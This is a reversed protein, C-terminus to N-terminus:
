LKTFILNEGEPLYIIKDLSPSCRDSSTTVTEAYYRWSIQTNNLKKLYINGWGIDCNTGNYSLVVMGLNPNTGLSHILNKEKMTTFNINQTNQLISGTSDRVVYRVILVDQYFKLNDLNFYKHDEKTIYLTITSGNFIGQYNGIYSDLENNLDKLYSNTTIDKLKTNLPLTQANCSIVTTIAIFLVLFQYYITKM